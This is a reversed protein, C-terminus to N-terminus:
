SRVTGILRYVITAVAPIITMASISARSTAVISAPADEVASDQRSYDDAHRKDASHILGPGIIGGAPDIPMPRNPTPTVPVM